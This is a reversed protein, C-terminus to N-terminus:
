TNEDRGTSVAELHNVQHPEEGNGDELNGHFPSDPKRGSKKNDLDDSPVELGLCWVGKSLYNIESLIFIKQCIKKMHRM